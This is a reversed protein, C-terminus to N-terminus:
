RSSSSPRSIPPPLPFNIIPHGAESKFLHGDIDSKDKSYASNDHAHIDTDTKLTDSDLHHHHHHLPSITGHQSTVLRKLEASRRRKARTMLLLAVLLFLLIFCTACLVAIWWPNEAILAVLNSNGNFGSPILPTAQPEKLYALSSM